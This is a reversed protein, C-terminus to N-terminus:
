TIWNDDTADSEATAVEILKKLQKSDEQFFDFVKSRIQEFFDQRHARSAYQNMVYVLYPEKLSIRNSIACAKDDQEVEVIKESHAGASVHSMGTGLRPQSENHEGEEKQAAPSGGKHSKEEENDGEGEGGADKDNIESRTM